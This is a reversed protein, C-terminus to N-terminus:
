TCVGRFHTRVEEVGRRVAPYRRALTPTDIGVLTDSSYEDWEDTNPPSGSRSAQARQTHETSLHRSYREVPRHPPTPCRYSSLSMQPLAARRVALPRFSSSRSSVSSRADRHEPGPDNRGNDRLKKPHPPVYTVVRATGGRRSQVNARLLPLKFASPYADGKRGNGSNATSLLGKKRPITSWSDEPSEFAEYADRKRGNGRVTAGNQHGHFSPPSSPSTLWSKKPSTSPQRLPSPFTPPLRSANANSLRHVDDIGRGRLPSPPNSASRSFTRSHEPSPSPSPRVHLGDTYALSIPSRVLIPPSPSPVPSYARQSPHVPSPYSHPHPHPYSPPQRPGPLALDPSRWERKFVLPKPIPTLTSQRSQPSARTPITQGTPTTTVRLYTLNGSPTSASSTVLGPQFPSQKCSSSVHPSTIQGPPARTPSSEFLLRRLDQKPVERMDHRRRRTEVAHLPSSSPIHTDHYTGSAFPSHSIMASPSVRDSPTAKRPSDFVHSHRSGLFGRASLVPSMVLTDNASCTDEAKALYGVDATTEDVLTDDSPTNAEAQYHSAPPQPPRAPLRMSSFEPASTVTVEKRITASPTRASAQPKKPQKRLLDVVTPHSPQKPGCPTPKAVALAPKPRASANAKAISWPNPKYMATDTRSGLDLQELLRADESVQKSIATTRNKDDSSKETAEEDEDSDSSSDDAYHNNQRLSFVWGSDTAPRRSMSFVPSTSRTPSTCHAFM